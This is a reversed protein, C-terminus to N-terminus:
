ETATSCDGTLVGQQCKIRRGCCAEHTMMINNARVDPLYWPLVRTCTPLMHAKEKNVTRRAVSDSAWHWM